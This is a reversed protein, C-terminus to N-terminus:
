RCSRFTSSCRAAARTAATAAPGACQDHGHEGVTAADPRLVATATRLGLGLLVPPAFDALGTLANGAVAQHSEKLERMQECISTLREVPDEIGVPLEAIIASVQNNLSHDKRSRLSVPVLTRVVVGDLEEDRGLLLDRFGRTIATLVVDNVTGGLVSRVQKIEALTTRAWAWRRHPGISGEIPLEVNPRLHEGLSLAGAVLDVTDGALRRPHRGMARVWRVMEAPTTVTDVLSGTLLERDTPEPQPTWEVIPVAEADPATDLVVAMLDTGSIGDVMCHHVKSVLAWTGDELGEVMWTEWLPRNRDLEQSMLRGM